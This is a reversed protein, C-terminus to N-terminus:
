MLVLSDSWQIESPSFFRMEPIVWFHVEDRSYGLLSCWKQFLGSTFKEKEDVVLSTLHSIMLQYYTFLPPDPIEWLPCGRLLSSFRNNPLIKTSFQMFIFFFHVLLPRGVSRGITFRGESVSVLRSRSFELNACLHRHSQHIESTHSRTAAMRSVLYWWEDEMMWQISRSDAAVLWM